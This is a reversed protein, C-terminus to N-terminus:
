LDAIKNQWFERVRNIREVMDQFDAENYSEDFGTMDDLSVWGVLYPHQSLDATGNSSVAAHSEAAGAFHITNPLTAHVGGNAIRAGASKSPGFIGGRPALECHVGADRSGQGGDATVWCDSDSDPQNPVYVIVGVHRITGYGETDTWLIYSDGVEPMAPPPNELVSRWKPHPSRAPTSGWKDAGGMNFAWSNPTPVTDNQYFAKMVVPYHFTTCSTDKGDPAPKWWSDSDIITGGQKYNAVGKGKRAQPLLRALTALMKKRRPSLNQAWATPDDEDAVSEPEPAITGDVDFFYNDSTSPVPASSQTEIADGNQNERCLGEYYLKLATKLDKGSLEDYLEDELNLESPYREHYLKALAGMQGANYAEQLVLMVEDEDTGGLFGVNFAEYLRSAWEPDDVGAPDAVIPNPAEYYLPLAEKLRKESLRDYLADELPDSAHQQAYAQKLEGMQGEAERLKQVVLKDDCGGIGLFGHSALEDYLQAVLQNVDAM